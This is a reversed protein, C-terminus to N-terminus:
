ILFVQAKELILRKKPDYELFKGLAGAITFAVTKSEMADSGRVNRASLRPMAEEPILVTGPAPIHIFHTKVVESFWPLNSLM